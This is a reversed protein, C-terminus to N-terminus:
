KSLPSFLAIRNIGFSPLSPPLSRALSRALSKLRGKPIRLLKLISDDWTLTSINMLLTRSANTVDTIHTQLFPPFSPPLFLFPAPHVIKCVCCKSYVLYDFNMVYICKKLSYKEGEDVEVLM